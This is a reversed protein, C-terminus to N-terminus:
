IVLGGTFDAPATANRVCRPVDVTCPLTGRWGYKSSWPTSTRPGDSGFLLRGSNILALAQADLFLTKTPKVQVVNDLKTVVSLHPPAPGRQSATDPTLVFARRQGRTM